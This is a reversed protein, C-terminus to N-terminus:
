AALSIQNFVLEATKPIVAEAVELEEPEEVAVEVPITLKLAAMMDKDMTEM